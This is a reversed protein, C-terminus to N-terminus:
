AQARVVAESAARRRRRHPALHRRPRAIAQEWTVRIVRDGHAELIRKANATPPATSRTTTTPATPRSSWASRAALPLGPVIRRGALFLPANVLPHAFGGRLLLDLM